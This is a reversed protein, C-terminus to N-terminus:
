NSYRTHKGNDERSNYRTKTKLTKNETEDHPPSHGVIYM